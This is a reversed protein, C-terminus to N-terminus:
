RYPGVCNLLLRTAAVMAVVTEPRAVDVGAIVRAGGGGPLRQALARLRAEDRGALGVRLPPSAAAAKALVEEAVKAGTFGARARPMPLQPSNLSTQPGHPASRQECGGDTADAGTAGFVVVDLERQAM